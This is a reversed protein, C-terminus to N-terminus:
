AGELQDILAQIGQKTLQLDDIQEVLKDKKELTKQKLAQKADIELAIKKKLQKLEQLTNDTAM